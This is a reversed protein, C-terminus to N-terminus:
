LVGKERLFGEAAATSIIAWDTGRGYMVWVDVGDPLRRRAPWSAPDEDKWKPVAFGERIAEKENDTRWKHCGGEPGTPGCLLQINWEVTNGRLRGQRHDRQVDDAFGCRVCVVDRDTAFKYAEREQKPTPKPTRQSVM